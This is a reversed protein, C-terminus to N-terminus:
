LGKIHGTLRGLLKVAYIAARNRIEEEDTPVGRLELDRTDDVALMTGQEPHIAIWFLIKILEERPIEHLLRDFVIAPIFAELATQAVDHLGLVFLLNRTQQVRDNVLGPPWTLLADQLAALQAALDADPEQDATAIPTVVSRDLPLRDFTLHKDVDARTVAQWSGPYEPEEPAPASPKSPTPAAVPRAPHATDRNAAASAEVKRATASPAAPKAPSPSSPAAPAPAPAPQPEVPRAAPPAVLSTVSPASGTEPAGTSVRGRVEAAAGVAVWALLAVGVWGKGRVSAFRQEQDWRFLKAAALCGAIGIGTLALLSFAAANVGTGTVSTQIAEVAYRGPLFASVHLAWDPLSTLPVAVGGIILMPLFLCQGLAQVAPVNDALMAIVLGLGLFAFSVFTFALLLSAPHRPFPMGLGMAIAIQLLAGLILLVYRALVTSVVLSATPVPTLRYRRWVGRERDGVMSTPLGFCAGGLVTITLLEGMHRVLPVQDYRYLAWFALLFITPFLYGYLLAMKNRFHLRLTARLQHLLADM